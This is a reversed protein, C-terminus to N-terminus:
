RGRKAKPEMLLEAMIFGRVIDDGSGIVKKQVTSQGDDTGSASVPEYIGCDTIGSMSTEM